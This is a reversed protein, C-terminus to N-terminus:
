LREELMKIANEMREVAAEAEKYKEETLLVPNLCEIRTGSEDRVPVIIYKFDDDGAATLSDRIQRVYELVHSDDMNSVGVYIVVLIKSNNEM